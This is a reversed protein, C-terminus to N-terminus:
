GLDAKAQQHRVQIKITVATTQQWSAIHLAIAPNHIVHHELEPLDAQLCSGGLRVNLFCKGGLLPLPPPPCPPIPAHPSLSLSPM